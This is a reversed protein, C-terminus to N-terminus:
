IGVQGKQSYFRIVGGKHFIAAISELVVAFPLALLLKAILSLTKKRKLEAILFGRYGFWSFITQIMGIIGLHFSFYHQQRVSFGCEEITRKLLAPTFHTLHRPVDLHLWNNGAWKSQWSEFNPVEVVLMGKDNLNGEILHKLLTGPQPIHELVHFLTLVDFKSGFVTGSVYPNTSVDLGFTQIAYNARPTSSEIGKVHFGKKEAFHLFLGKGCGFDLLSSAAPFLRRIKNIVQTYEYRQIHYFISKRTDQVAYDNEDYYSNITVEHKFYTYAAGCHSCQRVLYTETPIKKISFLIPHRDVESNSCISCEINIM